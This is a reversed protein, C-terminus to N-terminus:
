ETRVPPAPIARRQPTTKESQKNPEAQVRANQSTNGQRSKSKAPPTVARARPKWLEFRAEDGNSILVAHDSRVESLTWNDDLPMGAILNLRKPGSTEAFLAISEQQKLIVGVLYWAQKLEDANSAEAIDEKAKPRRNQNFLPRESIEDFAELPPYESLGVASDDEQAALYSSLFLLSLALFLRM